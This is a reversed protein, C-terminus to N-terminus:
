EDDKEQRAAKIKLGKEALEEMNPSWSQDMWDWEMAELFDAEVEALREQLRQNEDELKEIRDAAVKCVEEYSLAGTIGLM